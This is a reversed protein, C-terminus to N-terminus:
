LEGEPTNKLVTDLWKRGVGSKLFKERKRAQLYGPYTERLVVTFEGCFAAPNAM